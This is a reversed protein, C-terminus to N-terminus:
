KKKRDPWVSPFVSVSVTKARANSIKFALDIGRKQMREGRERKGGM